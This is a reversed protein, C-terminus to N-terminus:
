VLTKGRPKLDDRLSSIVEGGVILLLEKLNEDTIVGDMLKGNNHPNPVIIGKKAINMAVAFPNLNLGKQDVWDKIVNRGAWGVWAKISEKDQKQNQGRGKIMQQSYDAGEMRSRTKFVEKNIIPNLSQVWKGSARLKLVDYNEILKIQREQMWQEITKDM